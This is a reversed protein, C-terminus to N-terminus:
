NSIMETIKVAFNEEVVVITGNAMLDGDAFVNVPLIIAYADGIQEQASKGIPLVSGELLEQIEQVSMQIRAAEATINIPLDPDENYTIDEGDDAIKFIRFAFNEDIICIMGKAFLKGKVSVNFLEGSKNELVIISGTELDKMNQTSLKARGIEVVLCKDMSFVESLVFKEKRARMINKRMQEAANIIALKHKPSYSEPTQDTKKVAESM